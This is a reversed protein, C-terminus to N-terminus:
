RGGGVLALRETRVQIARHKSELDRRVGYARSRDVRVGRDALWEVAPMVDTTQPIGEIGLERWALLLYDVKSECASLETRVRDSVEPEDDESVVAVADAFSLEASGTAQQQEFRPYLPPAVPEAAAAERAVATVEARVYRSLALAEAPSGVSEIVAARWARATVKPDVIWRLMRFRPLPPEVAGVERLADRRYSRLTRDWVVVASVSAGGFFLAGATGLAEDGHSFNLVASGLAYVWVLARDVLASDGKLVSRMSLRALHLAAADLVLPVLVAWYGELGLWQHGVTV